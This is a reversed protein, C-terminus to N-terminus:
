GLARIRLDKFRATVWPGYYLLVKLGLGGSLRCSSPDRDHCEILTTGNLRHRLCHGDAIITLENCSYRRYFRKLVLEDVLHRSPKSSSPHTAGQHYMVQTPRALVGRGGFERLGCNYQWIPEFDLDYSILKPQNQIRYRVGLNGADMEPLALKVQLRLEFNDPPTGQWDLFEKKWNSGDPMRPAKLSACIAGDIVRWVSPDGSWGKLSSGDFIPEFGPEPKTHKSGRSIPLSKAALATVMGCGALAVIAKRRNMPKAVEEDALITALATATAPRTEPNKELCAFIAAEVAPPVPNVIDLSQQHQSITPPAHNLIQEVLLGNAFPTSGVLLTHLTAGLSYIDDAATAELGNLHQPSMFPLTGGPIMDITEALDSVDDPTIGACGFDVLKVNGDKDLLVNAPKIDRHVVGVRHMHDLAECLQLAIPKLQSWSLFGGSDKALTALCIGDVLEMEIFCLPDDDASIGHVRVISPHNLKLLARGENAFRRKRDGHMSQFKIALTGAPTTAQWLESLRGRSICRKLAIAQQCVAFPILILSSNSPRM